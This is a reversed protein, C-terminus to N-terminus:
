SELSLGDRLQNCRYAIISLQSSTYICHNEMDELTPLDVLPDITDPANYYKYLLNSIVVISKRTEDLQNELDALTPRKM